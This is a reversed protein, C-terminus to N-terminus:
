HFLFPTLLGPKLGLLLASLAIWLVVTTLLPPDALLVSAPDGGRNEQVVLYLYRFIGFFVFPLTLLFDAGFVQVARPSITYLSYSIIALTSCIVLFQDLLPVSYHALTGRHEAANSGLVVLESRRKAFGLFLALFVTCIVLWASIEVNIAIAGAVARLVFGLAIIMTDLIIIRKLATSYLVFILFYIIAVIGFPASLMFSLAAGAALLVLAALLAVPIPLTGSAIPRDKKKPHRRDAEVDVVDNLLYVASSLLCFMAFGYTVTGFLRLENDLSLVRDGVSFLWGAYLFLNKVWQKPRLSKILAFIM